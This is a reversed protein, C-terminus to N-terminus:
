SHPWNKGESKREQEEIKNIWAYEHIAKGYSISWFLYAFYQVVGHLEIRFSLFFVYLFFNIKKKM